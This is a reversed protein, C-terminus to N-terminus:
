RSIKEESQKKTRMRIIQICVHRKALKITKNKNNRKDGGSIEGVKRERDIEIETQRKRKREDNLKILRGFFSKNGSM